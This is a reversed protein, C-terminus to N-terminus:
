TPHHKAKGEVLWGVLLCAAMRHWIAIDREELLKYNSTISCSTGELYICDVKDEPYKPAGALCCLFPKEDPLPKYDM